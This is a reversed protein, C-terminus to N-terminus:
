KSPPTEKPAPVPLDKGDELPRLTPVELDDMCFQELVKCPYGTFGGGGILIKDGEWEQGAGRLVARTDHGGATPTRDLALTALVTGEADLVVVPLAPLRFTPEIRVGQKGVVSAILGRIVEKDSTTAAAEKRPDFPVASNSGIVIRAARTNWLDLSEATTELWDFKPAKSDPSNRAIDGEEREVLKRSLKESWALSEKHREEDSRLDRKFEISYAEKSPFAVKSVEKSLRSGFPHGVPGVLVSMGILSQHMPDVDLVLLSERDLTLAYHETADIVLRAYPIEDMLAMDHRKLVAYTEAFKQGVAIENGPDPEAKAMQM